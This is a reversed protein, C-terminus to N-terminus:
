ENETPIPGTGVVDRVAEYFAKRTAFYTVDTSGLVDALERPGEPTRIVSEGEKRVIESREQPWTLRSAVRALPAGEVSEGDGLEVAPGEDEEEGDGNGEESMAGTEALRRNFGDFGVKKCPRPAGSARGGPLFRCWFSM